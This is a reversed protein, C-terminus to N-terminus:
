RRVRLGVSVTRPLGPRAGAPQLAAIYRRDLLNEVGAILEGWDTVRWEGSLGLILRADTARDPPIPGQGAVTRMASVYDSGLRVRWGEGEAGLSASWQHRPMYPLEDGAEVTGWPAFDSEFSTGFEARTYTYSLQIPLRLGLGYREGPDLHALFEVGRVDVQGGNYLDGEGTGGSSLTSRGLVNDQDSYFGVVELGLGFAGYRVGVEYNVSEEAKTGEAAGPGPPGFGRHVGGFVRFSPGFERSVGIGPIWVTVENGREAVPATRSPDTVAYDTREFDIKEYRVGPSITWGGLAIDDQVYFAWARARGVRNSQSGPAGRDTLRMVGGVMQYRDDHQFRDEEDEHYRAGFEVAHRSRGVGFEVGVSAQVGQSYYSRDNARVTLAGPESDGGRVVELAAAHSTPDGVVSAIDTGMVSALKYWNRDFENRYATVTVDFLGEPRVFYMAQYQRHESTMVDLRSAAYRRFPDAGFDALTLGLYTEDSEHDTLGFKFELEHYTRASRDTNLRFKLLYDRLEYGTAGGGDLRKFGDTHLQYTEVLWGFNRGSDGVRARLRGTRNGGGQMEVHTRFDEPIASSVLNLAGGVTRPGYKVQSSGKRVEIAEMRAVSPFYYAAPAAYPAPAILVGDEMVTVKSSRESGTGRMGINPRLGYGEEEQLYVGPVQRLVRNVDGFLTQEGSVSLDVVHASGAITAADGVGGVLRTRRALVDLAPLAIASEVLTARVSFESGAVLEVRETHVAYGPAEFRVTYVGPRLDGISFRGDAGSVARKGTGVVEVTVGSLPRGGGEVEVVGVLRSSSGEQAQSVGAGAVVLAAALAVVSWGSARSM